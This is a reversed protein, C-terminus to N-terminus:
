LASRARVGQSFSFGGPAGSLVFSQLYFQRFAVSSPVFLDVSLGGSAAVGAVVIDGSVHLNCGSTGLLPDLLLPLPLGAYSDESFGIILAGLAGSAANNTTTQMVSGALFPLQLTLFPAGTLPCPSGFNERRSRTFEMGRLDPNGAFNVVLTTTGNSTNLRYLSGRGVFRENTEGHRCMFQLATPDVVGLFPDNSFGTALDILLMGATVHWAKAGGFPDELGQIGAHNTFGISAIAGTDTDIHILEDTPTAARIAFVGGLARAICMARLDGVNVTPFPLSEAGTFPDILALRWIPQAANPRVVTWLRNDNDFTLCNKGGTGTALVTVAGSTTDLRLVQGAFTVGIADQASVVGAFLAAALFPVTRPTQM